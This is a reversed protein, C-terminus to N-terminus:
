RVHTGCISMGSSFVSDRQFKDHFNTVTNLSCPFKRSVYQSQPRFMPENSPDWCLAPPLAISACSM